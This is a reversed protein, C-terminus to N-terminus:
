EQDKREGPTGGATEGAKEAAKERAKEPAKEGAPSRAIFLGWLAAAGLAAFVLAWGPRGQLAEFAAWGLAAAVILVRRWLPRYFPHTFDFFGPGAPSRALSRSPQRSPPQAPGGRPEPEPEPEPARGSPDGSPDSTM